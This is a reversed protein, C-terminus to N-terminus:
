LSRSLLQRLRADWRYLPRQPGHIGPDDPQRGPRRRRGGGSQHRRCKAARRATYHCGASAMVAQPVATITQPTDLPAQSFKPSAVALADVSTTVEVSTAMSKLELSVATASTFRYTLGTDALLKQLAQEPTFVGAVGPSPLSRIGPNSVSVRYGTLQEFAALVSDLSGAAIDFRRAPQAGLTQSTSESADGSRDQARAVNITKSGVASYAVLTGMAAWRYAVPWSSQSSNGSKENPRATKSKIRM